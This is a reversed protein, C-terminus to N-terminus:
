DSALHLLKEYQKKIDKNGFLCSTTVFRSAGADKAMIITKENIGGDVSIPIDTKERLDRVKELHKPEFKQGSFGAKITMILICDLDDYPVKIESLSTGGDIALGVEGLLQAQAVFDVQDSMKEFHALFRKFGAQAFPKLYQIPEEVMMHVELFFDDSYKKFPSPDFWTTNSSFKGDLIDIHITRAFPAVLEIKKEIDSWEKELIGPIVETM